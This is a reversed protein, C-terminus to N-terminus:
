LNENKRIYVLIAKSTILFVFYGCHSFNKFSFMNKFLFMFCYYGVIIMDHASLETLFQHFKGM